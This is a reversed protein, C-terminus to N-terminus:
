KRNKKAAKKPEAHYIASVVKDLTKGTPHVNHKASLNAFLARTTQANM